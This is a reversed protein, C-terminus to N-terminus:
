RLFVAFPDVIEAVYAVETLKVSCLTEDSLTACAKDVRYKLYSSLSKGKSPGVSVGYQGLDIQARVPRLNRCVIAYKSGKVMVGPPLPEWSLGNISYETAYKLTGDFRSKTLSMALYPIRNNFVSQYVFPLVQNTPHCAVGGYGWFIMGCADQERKKRVIISDLDEDVHFGVKMFVIDRLTPFASPDASNILSDPGFLYAAM